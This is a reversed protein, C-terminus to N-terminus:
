KGYRRRGKDGRRVDHWSPSRSPPAPTRTRRPPTPPSASRRRTSFARGTLRTNCSKGQRNLGPISSHQKREPMREKRRSHRPSPSRSYSIREGKGKTSRATRRRRPSPPPTASRSASPLRSRRRPPSKDEESWYSTDTPSRDRKSGRRGPSHDATAKRAGPHSPPKSSDNKKRSSSPSSASAASASASASASAPASDSAAKVGGPTYASRRWRENREKEKKDKLRVDTVLPKTVIKPKTSLELKPPVPKGSIKERLDIIINAEQDTEMPLPDKDPVPDRPNTSKVGEKSGGKGLKERLDTASFSFELYKNRAAQV